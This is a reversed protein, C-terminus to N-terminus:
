NSLERQKRMDKKHKKVYWVGPECERERMEDFKQECLLKVDETKSTINRSAAWQKLHLRIEIPNLDPHYPPFWLVTHRYSSLTRDVLYKQACLKHIQIVRYLQSKFMDDSCPIGHSSLWNMMDMKRSNSSSTWGLPCQPIAHHWHSHCFKTALKSNIKGAAMNWLKWFENPQSLNLYGLNWHTLILHYIFAARAKM